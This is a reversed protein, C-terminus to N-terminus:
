FVLDLFATNKQIQSHKTKVDSHSFFETNQALSSIQKNFTHYQVGNNYFIFRTILQNGFWIKFEARLSLVDKVICTVPFFHKM